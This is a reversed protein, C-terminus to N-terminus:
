NSYKNKLTPWDQHLMTRSVMKYHEEKLLEYLRCLKTYDAVMADMAVTSSNDCKIGADIIKNMELRAMVKRFDTQITIYNGDTNDTQYGQDVATKVKEVLVVLRQNIESLSM